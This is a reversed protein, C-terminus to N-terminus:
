QSGQKFNECNSNICGLNVGLNAGKTYYSMRKEDFAFDGFALAVLPYDCYHCARKGCKQCHWPQNGKIYESRAFSIASDTFLSAEGWVVFHSNGAEPIAEKVLVSTLNLQHHFPILKTGRLKTHILKQGGLREIVDSCIMCRASTPRTQNVEFTMEDKPGPM